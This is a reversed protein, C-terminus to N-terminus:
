EFCRQAKKAEKLCGKCKGSADPKMSTMNGLRATKAVCQTEQADVSRQLFNQKCGPYYTVSSLKSFFLCLGTGNSPIYQFGVCSSSVAAAGDCAAACRNFDGLVPPSALKGGCTSPVGVFDKNVFYMLSKYSQVHNGVEEFAPANAEQQLVTLERVSLDADDLAEKLLKNPDPMAELRGLEAARKRGDEAAHELKVAFDKAEQLHGATASDGAKLFLKQLADARSQMDSSALAIKDVMALLHAKTAYPATFNDRSLQLAGGYRSRAIQTSQVLVLPAVLLGLALIRATALGVM